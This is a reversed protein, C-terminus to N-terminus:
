CPQRADQEQSQVPAPSQLDRLRLVDGWEYPAWSPRTLARRIRRKDREHRSLHRRVHVSGGSRCSANRRLPHTPEARRHQLEGPLLRAIFCSRLSSSPRGALAPSFYSPKMSWCSEASVVRTAAPAELSARLARRDLVRSRSPRRPLRSGPDSSAHPTRMEFNMLCGGGAVPQAITELGVRLARVAYFLRPMSRHGIPVGLADAIAEDTLDLYHRLVVIARRGVSLRRFARELQDRDAVRPLATSLPKRTPLSFASTPRGVGASRERSTAGRSHPDPVGVGEFRAPDRLQPLTKGSPCCRRSRRMTPSISTACLDPSRMAHLRSGIVVALSAFAGEDGRQAQM